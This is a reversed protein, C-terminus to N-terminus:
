GRKSAVFLVFDRLRLRSTLMLVSRFYLFELIAAKARVMAQIPRATEATCSKAFIAQRRTEATQATWWRCGPYVAKGVMTKEEVAFGASELMKGWDSATVLNLKLAPQWNVVPLHSTGV